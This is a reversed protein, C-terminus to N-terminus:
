TNWRRESMAQRRFNTQSLANGRYLASLTCAHSEGRSTMEIQRSTELQLVAVVLILSQGTQM